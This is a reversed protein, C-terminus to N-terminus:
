ALTQHCDKFLSEAWGAVGERDGEQELKDVHQQFAPTRGACPALGIIGLPLAIFFPIRWGWELFNEEGVITSIVGGRGRGARVRRHFWFGALKGYIWCSVIRRINRSLSPRAGSNGGVSFGQHWKVCCCCYQRGSVSKWAYSPNVRSVSPVSSMIVITIATIKQRGHM